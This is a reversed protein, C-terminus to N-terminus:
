NGSKDEEPPSNKAQAKDTIHLDSYSHYDCSGDPNFDSSTYMDAEVMQQFSFTSRIQEYNMEEFPAPLKVYLRRRDILYKLKSQAEAFEKLDFIYGCCECDVRDHKTPEGCMPCYNFKTM